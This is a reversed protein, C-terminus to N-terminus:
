FEVHLFSGSTPCGSVSSCQLASTCGKGNCVEFRFAPKPIFQSQGWVSVPQVFIQVVRELVPRQGRCSSRWNYPSPKPSSSAVSSCARVLYSELVFLAQRFHGPIDLSHLHQARHLSLHAGRDRGFRIGPHNLTAEHRRAKGVTTLTQDACKRKFFVDRQDIPSM